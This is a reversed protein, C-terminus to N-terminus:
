EIVDLDLPAEGENKHQETVGTIEEDFLLQYLKDEQPDSHIIGGSRRGDRARPEARRVPAVRETADQPAEGRPVVADCRLSAAVAIRAEMRDGVAKEIETMPGGAGLISLAREGFLKRLEHRLRKGRETLGFALGELRSLRGLDDVATERLG